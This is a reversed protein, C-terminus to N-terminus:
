KKSLWERMEQMVSEHSSCEGRKIQDEGEALANKQEASLQYPEQETNEFYLQLAKLVDIDNIAKIRSILNTKIQDTTNM